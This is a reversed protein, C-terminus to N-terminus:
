FPPLFGIPIMSDILRSESASIEGRGHKGLIADGHATLDYLDPLDKSVSEIIVEM